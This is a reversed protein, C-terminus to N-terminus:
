PTRVGSRAALAEAHTLDEMADTWQTLAKELSVRAQALEEALGSARTKSAAEYLTPDSLTATLAAIRSELTGVAQEASQVVASARKAAREGDRRSSVPITHRTDKADKQDRKTAVPRTITTPLESVAAPEVEEWEAFNGDYTQIRRNRLSWVRTSVTRLLERDHSVLLITGEYAELADELAEVSEVDLHNTPEDLVLLNADRLVLMALALRAREGGSFSSIRRFVEDGSFGFGGLHNQIAGRNWMTRLAHIADYPTGELSLQALDQRYYALTIGSGVRLVGASTQHLGVLANLLTSKGTGNPGVLAVRDGRRIEATFQDLMVRGEMEVRAREAAMVIDGGRESVNLRLSLAGGESPPPSLRPLRELRKRRGKAQRSNQGALNRRIYDEETAVVKRQKDVLRDQTLRREARQQVFARYGASYATATGGEFHLIHNAIAALFARDHSVLLITSSITALYQELWKTTDLDLHNTPEDLLLIDAARVLERALALRGKEGGSLAAMPRERALVPDFGLGDLVADIRSPATYGGAHEFQEMLHGYDDLSVSGDHDGLRHAMEELQRGMELVAGLGSGAADWVNEAGGFDHHQELMSIRIGADRAIVGSAPTSEGTILRFLTSKGTGNRGIVGWREGADVTFTINEFITAAGITASVSSVSLQTM